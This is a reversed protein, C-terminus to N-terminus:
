GLVVTLINVGDGRSRFCTVQPFVVFLLNDRGRGVDLFVLSSTWQWGFRGQSEDYRTPYLTCIGKVEMMAPSNFFGGFMM